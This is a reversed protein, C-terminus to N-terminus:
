NQARVIFKDIDQGEVTEPYNDKIQQYVLVAKDNQGLKEYALGAKKLFMPSTFDNAERKSAEEFKAAGKELEGLEVYCDGMLGIVLTGMIVDDFEVDELYVLAGEFDRKYMLHTGMAYSAINGAPTGSYESAIEEMGMFNENGTFALESTDNYQWEYFAPWYADQAEELHPESIFKKYIVIGLVLIVIGVGAMVIYRKYQDFVSEAKTLEVKETGEAGATNKQSKKAM